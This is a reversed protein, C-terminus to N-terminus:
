TVHNVRNYVNFKGTPAYLGKIRAKEKLTKADYIVMEGNPKLSDSRNWISVWVEDGAKNFEFHVAVYGKKKTVRITKIVKRTKKDLIKISQQIEPEPHLTQDM